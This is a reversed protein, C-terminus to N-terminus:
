MGTFAQLILIDQDVVFGPITFISALLLTAGGTNKRYVSYRKVLYLNEFVTKLSVIFFVEGRYAKLNIETSQNEALM